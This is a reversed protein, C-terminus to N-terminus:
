AGLPRAARRPRAAPRHPACAHRAHWAAKIRERHERAEARRQDRARRKEAKEARRRERRQQFRHWVALVKAKAWVNLRHVPEFETGLIGLGLFIALWGPGPTVLMIIGALVIVSGVVTVVIKHVAAFVPHRGTFAKFRSLARHIRGEREGQAIEHELGM